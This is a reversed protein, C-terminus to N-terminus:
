YSYQISPLRKNLPKAQRVVLFHHFKANSFNESSYGASVPSKWESLVQVHFINGHWQMMVTLLIRLNFQFQFVFNTDDTSHRCNMWSPPNLVSGKRVQLWTVSDHGLKYAPDLNPARYGDVNAAPYWGSIPGIFLACTGYYVCLCFRHVLLRRSHAM